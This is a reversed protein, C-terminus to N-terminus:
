PHRNDDRVAWEERLARVADLVVGM